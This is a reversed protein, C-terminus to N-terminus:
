PGIRTTKAFRLRPGRQKENVFPMKRTKDQGMSAQKSGDNAMLKVGAMQLEKQLDSSTMKCNKLSM